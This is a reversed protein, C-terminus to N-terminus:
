QLKSLKGMRETVRAKFEPSALWKKMDHQVIKEGWEAGLESGMTAAMTAIVGKAQADLAEYEVHKQKLRLVGYLEGLSEVAGQVVKWDERIAWRTPNSDVGIVRVTVWDDTCYRWMDALREQLEDITNVGFEKLVDRRFQFEVRVVTTKGDWGYRGWIDRFWGKKSRTIEFTKDYIRGMLQSSGFEYGTLRRGFGYAAISDIHLYSSRNDAWTVLERSIDIKPMEM